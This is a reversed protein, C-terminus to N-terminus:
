REKKFHWPFSLIGGKEKEKDRKRSLAMRHMLSRVKPRLKGLKEEKESFYKEDEPFFHKVSKLFHNFREISVSIGLIDVADLGYYRSGKEAKEQFNTSKSMLVKLTDIDGKQAAYMLATEGYANKVDPSMGWDLLMRVGEKNGHNVACMLPTIGQKNQVPADTLSLNEIIHEEMKKTILYFNQRLNHESLALLTQASHKPEKYEKAQYRKAWGNLLLLSVQGKLTKPSPVYRTVQKKQAHELSRSVVSIVPEVMQRASTYRRIWRAQLDEGIKDLYERKVEETLRGTGAFALAVREDLVYLLALRGYSNRVNPDAGDRLIDFIDKRLQIIERPNREKEAFPTQLVYLDMVKKLLLKDREEAEM